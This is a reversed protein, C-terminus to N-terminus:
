VPLAQTIRNFLGEIAGALGTMVAMASISIVVIVLGYEILGQGDDARNNLGLRSSLCRISEQFM